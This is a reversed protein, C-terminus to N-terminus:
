KSKWKEHGNLKVLQKNTDWHNQSILLVFSEAQWTQNDQPLDSLETTAATPQDKCKCKAEPVSSLAVFDIFQARQHRPSPKLFNSVTKFGNWHMEFLHVSWELNLITEPTPICNVGQAQSLKIFSLLIEYRVFSREPRTWCLLLQEQPEGYTGYTVGCIREEWQSLYTQM